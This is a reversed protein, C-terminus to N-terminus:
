KTETEVRQRSIPSSFTPCIAASKPLARVRGHQEGDVRQFGADDKVLQGAGAVVGFRSSIAWPMALTWRCDAANGTGAGHAGGDDVQGTACLGFALPTM